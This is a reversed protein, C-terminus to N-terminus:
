KRVQRVMRVSNVNWDMKTRTVAMVRRMARFTENNMNTYMEELGSQLSSESTQIFNSVKDFLSSESEFNITTAPVAKNTQM